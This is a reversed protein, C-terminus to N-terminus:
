PQTTKPKYDKLLPLSWHEMFMELTYRCDTRKKNLQKRFHENNKYIREAKDVLIQYLNSVIENIEVPQYDVFRKDREIVNWLAREAIIYPILPTDKNIDYQLQQTM